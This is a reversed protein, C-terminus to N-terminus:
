SPGSRGLRAWAETAPHELAERGAIISTNHGRLGTDARLPVGRPGADQSAEHLAGRRLASSPVPLSTVQENVDEVGHLSDKLFARALAVRQGEGHRPAHQAGLRHDRLRGTTAVFR